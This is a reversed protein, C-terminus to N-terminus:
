CTWMNENHLRYRLDHAHNAKLAGRCLPEIPSQFRKISGNIQLQFQGSIMVTCKLDDLSISQVM